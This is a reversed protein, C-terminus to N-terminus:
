KRASNKEKLVQYLNGEDSLIFINGCKICRYYKNIGKDGKEEGLFEVEGHSCQEKMEM